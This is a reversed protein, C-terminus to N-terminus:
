ERVAVRVARVQARRTARASCVCLVLARDLAVWTTLARGPAPPASLEEITGGAALRYHHCAPATQGERVIRGLLQTDRAPNWHPELAIIHSAGVLTLGPAMLASLLFVKVTSGMNFDNIMQMQAEGNRSGVLKCVAAPGFTARFCAALYELVVVSYSGVVVKEGMTSVIEDVLVLVVQLKTSLQALPRPATKKEPFFPLARGVVPGCMAKNCLMEPHLLLNRLHTLRALAPKSSEAEGGGRALEEYIVREHQQLRHVLIYVHTTIPPCGSGKQLQARTRRLTLPESLLRLGDAALSLAAKAEASAGRARGTEFPQVICADFGTVDGLLGPQAHQLLAGLEALNNALPTATVLIRASAAMGVGAVAMSQKAKPNSIRQAEDVVLLDVSSASFGAVCVAM